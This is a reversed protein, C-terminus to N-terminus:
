FAPERTSFKTCVHLQGTDVSSQQNIEICKHIHTVRLKHYKIM